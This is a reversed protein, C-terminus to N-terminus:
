QHILAFPVDGPRGVAIGDAMTRMTTLPVPHGALLSPPYAAAGAAQAGVVRVDPRTSAIALAVGALLGGGGTCVVVTRVDPVQDLIELGLTGQGAVIDAHDFPSIFIAGTSDAFRSLQIERPDAVILRAGRDKARFIRRAVLPHCATTNSGIVFICGSSEIDAISNTMAGSGFAAALGAM